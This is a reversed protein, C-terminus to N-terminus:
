TEDNDGRLDTELPIAERKLKNLKVGVAVREDWVSGYRPDSGSMEKLERTLMNWENQLRELESM